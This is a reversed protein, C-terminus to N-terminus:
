KAKGLERGVSTLMFAGHEGVEVVYGFTVLEQFVTGEPTSGGPDRVYTEHASVLQMLMQEADRSLSAHPRIWITECGPEITAGPVPCVQWEGSSSNFVDTAELRIRFSPGLRLGSIPVGSKPHHHIHM